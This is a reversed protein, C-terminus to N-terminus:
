LCYDLVHYIGLVEYSIQPVLGTIEALFLTPAEIVSGVEPEITTNVVKSRIRFIVEEVNTFFVQIEMILVEDEESTFFLDEILNNRAM